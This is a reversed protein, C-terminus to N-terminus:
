RMFVVKFIARFDVPNVFRGPRPASAMQHEDMVMDGIGEEDVEIDDIWEKKIMARCKLFFAAEDRSNRKLLETCEDICGDYDRHKLKFIAEHFPNLSGAVM